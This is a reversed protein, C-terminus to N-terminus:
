KNFKLRRPTTLCNLTNPCRDQGSGVILPTTTCSFNIGSATTTEVDFILIQCIRANMGNTPCSPIGDVDVTAAWCYENLFKAKFALAGGAIALVLLSMLMIKVKKM